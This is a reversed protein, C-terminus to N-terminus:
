VVPAEEQAESVTVSPEQPTEVPTSVEPQIQEEVPPAPPEEVPPAPPEVPEEVPPSVPPTEVPEEVPPSTSTSQSPIDSTVESGSSEPLPTSSSSTQPKSSSSQSSSVGTKQSSSSSTVPTPKIEVPPERRTLESVTETHRDETLYPHNKYYNLLVTAGEQSLHLGDSIYYDPNAYGDVGKLVECSNLFPLDLEKALAALAENFRNLRQLTISPYSNQKAIPPISNIIIDCNPDAKQLAQVLQRYQNAFQEATIAGTADNTGFTLLIRRPQVMEVAQSITYVKSNNKFYVCPAGIAGTTGMGEKGMYNSLSVMNYAHLRVTNSDGVFLTEEFYLPDEPQTIDQPELLTDTYQTADFSPSDQRIELLRDTEKVLTKANQYVALIAVVFIATVGFIIIGLRKLQQKFKKKQLNKKLNYRRELNFNIAM